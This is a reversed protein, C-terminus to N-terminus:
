YKDNVVIRKLGNNDLIDTEEAYLNGYNKIYRKGYECTIESSGANCHINITDFINESIDAYDGSVIYFGNVFVTYNSNNYIRM